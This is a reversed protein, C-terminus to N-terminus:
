TSKDCVLVLDYFNWEITQSVFTLVKWDWHQATYLLSLVLGTRESGTVPHYRM